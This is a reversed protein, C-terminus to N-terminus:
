IRKRETWCIRSDSACEISGYSKRKIWERHKIKNEGSFLRLTLRKTQHHAFHLKFQRNSLVRIECVVVNESISLHMSNKLSWCVIYVYIWKSKLPVMYVVLFVEWDSLWMTYPVANSKNYPVTSVMMMIVNYETCPVNYNKIMSYITYSIMKLIKSAGILWTMFKIISFCLTFYLICDNGSLIMNDKM